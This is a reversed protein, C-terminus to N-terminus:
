TAAVRARSSSWRKAWGAQLCSLFPSSSGRRVWLCGGRWRRARGRLLLDLLAEFVPFRDGFWTVSRRARVGPTGRLRRRAVQEDHRGWELGGDEAAERWAVTMCSTLNLSRMRNLLFARTGWTESRLGPIRLRRDARWGFAAEEGAGQAGGDVREQFAEGVEAFCGVPVLGAGGELLELGADGGLDAGGADVWGLGCDEGGFGEMEGEGGGVVGGAVPDERGMGLFGAFGAPGAEDGACEAGDLYVAEEAGAELREGVAGFGPPDDVVFGGVGVNGIGGGGQGLEACGEGGLKLGVGFDQAVEM